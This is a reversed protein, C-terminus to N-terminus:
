VMTTWLSQNIEGLMIHDLNIWTMVHMQVETRKLALHYGMAQIPCRENLWEDMLPCKPQQRSKSRVFLAATFMPTYTNTQTGTRLEKPNYGPTSDRLSIIIKNLKKLDQWVTKWLSQMMKYHWWCHM